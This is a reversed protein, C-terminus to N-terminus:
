RVVLAGQETHDAIICQFSYEGSKAPTFTIETQEGAPAVLHLQPPTGSMGMDNSGAMNHGMMPDAQGQVVLPLSQIALQHERNDTNHMVITAPKGVIVEVRAPSYGNRNVQISFVTTSPRSSCATLLMVFIMLGLIRFIDM